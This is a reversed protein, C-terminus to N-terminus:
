VLVAARSPGGGRNWLRHGALPSPVGLRVTGGAGGVLGAARGGYLLGPQVDLKRLGRRPHWPPNQYRETEHSQKRRIAINAAVAGAGGACRCSHSVDFVAVPAPARAARLGEDWRQRCRRPPWWDGPDDC